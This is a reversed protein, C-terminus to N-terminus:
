STKKPAPPQEVFHDKSTASVIAQAIRACAVSTTEAQQVGELQKKLLSIENQLLQLQTIGGGEDSM